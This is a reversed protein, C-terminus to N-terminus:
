GPHALTLPVDTKEDAFLIRLRVERQTRPVIFIELEGLTAHRFLYTAQPLIKATTGGAAVRRFVDIIKQSFPLATFAVKQMKQRSIGIIQEAATNIFSVKRRM